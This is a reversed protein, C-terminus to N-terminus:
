LEGKWKFALRLVGGLTVIGSLAWGARVQLCLLGLHIFVATALAFCGYQVFLLSASKISWKTSQLFNTRNALLYPFLFFGEHFENLMHEFHVSDEWKSDTQDYVWLINFYNKFRVPSKRNDGLSSTNLKESVSRKDELGYSSHRSYCEENELAGRCWFNHLGWDADVAPRFEGSCFPGSPLFVALVCFLFCGDGWCQKWHKWTVKYLVNIWLSFLSCRFSRYQRNNVIHSKCYKGRWSYLCLKFYNM